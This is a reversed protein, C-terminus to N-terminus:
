QLSRKCCYSRKCIAIKSWQLGSATTLDLSQITEMVFRLSSSAGDIQQSYENREEGSQPHIGSRLSALQAFTEKDLDVAKNVLQACNQLVVVRQELFNDITSAAKNIQQEIRKLENDANKEYINDVTRHVIFGKILPNTEALKYAYAFSAAQTQEDSTQSNFLIESIIIYRVQGNPALFAPQAMYNTFVEMNQPNIMRTNPTHDILNMAKYNAPMDWFRAATLPVPHPHWAVGWDINGHSAVDVNFADIFKKAGYQNKYWRGM